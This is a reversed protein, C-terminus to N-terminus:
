MNCWRRAVTVFTNPAGVRIADLDGDAITILDIGMEKLVRAEEETAADIRVMKCAAAKNAQVCAMMLNCCAPKGGYTYISKM